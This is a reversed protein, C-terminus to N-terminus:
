RDFGQLFLKFGKREAALAANLTDGNKEEILKKV